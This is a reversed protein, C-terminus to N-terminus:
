YQCVQQENSVIKKLLWCDAVRRVADHAVLGLELRLEVALRGVVVFSVADFTLGALM